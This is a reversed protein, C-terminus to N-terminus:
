PVAAFNIETAVWDRDQPVDKKTVEAVLRDGIQPRVSDTQIGKQQFVTDPKLALTTTEGKQTKVVIHDSAIHTVTGMIHAGDGHAWASVTWGFTVCIIFILFRNV